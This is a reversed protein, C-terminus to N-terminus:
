LSQQVVRSIVILLKSDGDAALGGIAQEEWLSRCRSFGVYSLCRQSEEATCRRSRSAIAIKRSNAESTKKLMVEYKAWNAFKDRAVTAYQLKHKIDQRM